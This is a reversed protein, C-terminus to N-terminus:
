KKPRPLDKEERGLMIQDFAAPGGPSALRLGRIRVPKKFVKWLDVRVVQWQRPPTEAIKKPITGDEPKYQGAYLSVAKGHSEGDLRLTIGKTEPALGRWAFQLYRYQGPGPKEVTEFDWNPIVHGFPPQFAPYVHANAPTTICRGGAYAGDFRTPLIGM